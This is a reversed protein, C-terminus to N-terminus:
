SHSSPASFAELFHSGAINGVGKCDSVSTYITACPSYRLPYTAYIITRRQIKLFYLLERFMTFNDSTEFLHLTIIHAM